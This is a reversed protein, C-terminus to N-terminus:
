VKDGIGVGECHFDEIVQAGLAEGWDWKGHAIGRPFCLTRIECELNLSLRTMMGLM